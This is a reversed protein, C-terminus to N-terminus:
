IRKSVDIGNEILCLLGTTARHARNRDKGSFTEILVDMALEGSGEIGATKDLAWVARCCLMDDEHLLDALLPIAFATDIGRKAAKGIELVADMVFNYKERSLAKDLVVLVKENDKENLLRRLRRRVFPRQIGETMAKCVRAFTPCYRAFGKKEKDIVKM